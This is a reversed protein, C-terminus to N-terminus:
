KSECDANGYRSYCTREACRNIEDRRARENLDVIATDQYDIWKTETVETCKTTTYTGISNSTCRIEGTPVEVQKNRTVTTMVNNIPYKSFAPYACENKVGSKEATECGVLLFSLFVSTIALIKM